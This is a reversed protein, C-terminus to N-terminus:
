CCIVNGVQAKVDPEKPAADGNKHKGVVDIDKAVVNHGGGASPASLCAGMLRWLKSPKTKSTHQPLPQTYTYTNINIFTHIDQKAANPPAIYQTSCALARSAYVGAAQV